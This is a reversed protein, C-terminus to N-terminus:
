KGRGFLGGRRTETGSAATPASEGATPREGRSRASELLRGAEDFKAQAERLKNEAEALKQDALENVRATYDAAAKEAAKFVDNMKLAAEAISGCNALEIKRSDLATQAKELAETLEQIQKQQGILIQLLDERRLRQLERDTMRNGERIVAISGM